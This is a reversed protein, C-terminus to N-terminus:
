EFIAAVHGVCICELIILVNGVQLEEFDSYINQCSSAALVFFYYCDLHLEAM